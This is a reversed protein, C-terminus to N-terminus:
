EKGRIRELGDLAIQALTEWRKRQWAASGLKNAHWNHALRVIEELPHAMRERTDREAAEWGEWRDRTHPNVYSEDHVYRSLTLEPFKAEFRERSQAIESSAQKETM